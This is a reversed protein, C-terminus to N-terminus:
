NKGGVNVDIITMTDNGFIDVVKVAIKRRGQACKHYISKLELSRDTKTRFSQWENEFIFDGTWQEEWNGTDPNQVCIIERKNEFDFDVSWYDIWDKWTKTLQEDTSTGDKSKSIIQGNKVVIKSRGNNPTAEAHAISDQSYFVSFDTLEVAVTNDKFHPCVEIFAVDHFVVQNREVARKDFVDRPIYKLAIDIGEERAENLINPFLGMEFEFGLIDVKTIRNKRCGLIIEEIFRRSVPMNVPGIVVLRGAKKGHFSAFSDTKEARYAGLILDLFARERAQLQQQRQEERLSPNVGVYHQREYKGLNLIEFARYDKGDAKLERQVGIMRKRTTHIAFKSLDAAIWKRGLKEAVASTTGSGVFFDAVIDGENSSAAIIRKLLDEPKQTNYGTAQADNRFISSIDDWIDRAIVMRYKQGPSGNLCLECVEDRRVCLRQGSSTHPEPLTPVYSKQLLQNFVPNEGRSYYLIHDHKKSFGIAQPTGGTKYTWEIQNIFHKKGFIEDMTLRVIANVHWDCHVYISGDDALLDRMISLREYIMAIFSDVGQGWTDRYAVEELINRNKTFKKDGIEIDISFDAGVDFPPDIYILKIGGQREIEERLPGNKLSSLILKNDGWILKNTWGRLQRGRNDMAFLDQQAVADERPEDVQEITQFPLVVNTVENTKGNWVLEVERKDDFLLFRYKDPLPKGAEILRIVEQQEQKTLRAM